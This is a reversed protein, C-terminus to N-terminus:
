MFMCVMVFVNWFAIFIRFYRLNRLFEKVREGLTEGNKSYEDGFSVVEKKKSSIFLGYFRAM